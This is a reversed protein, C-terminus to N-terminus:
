RPDSRFTLNPKEGLIQILSCVLQFNSSKLLSKTEYRWFTQVTVFYKLFIKLSLIELKFLQCKIWHTFNHCGWWIDLLQFWELFHCWALVFRCHGPLTEKEIPKQGHHIHLLLQHHPCVLCITTFSINVFGRAGEVCVRGHPLTDGVGHGLEVRVGHDTVISRVRSNNTQLVAGPPHRHYGGVVAGPVRWVWTGEREVVWTVEDVPFEPLM